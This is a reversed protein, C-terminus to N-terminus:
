AFPNIKEVIIGDCGRLVKMAGCFVKGIGGHFHNATGIKTGRFCWGQFFNESDHERAPKGEPWTSPTIGAEPTNAFAAFFFEDKAVQEGAAHVQDFKTAEVFGKIGILFIRQHIFQLFAASFEDVIRLQNNM